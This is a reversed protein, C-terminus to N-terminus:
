SKDTVPHHNNQQSKILSALAEAFTRSTRMGTLDVGLRVLTQSAHAGVGTVIAEAGILKLSMVLNGLNAVAHSDVIRAGTIDIIFACAGTRMVAALAADTARQMRLTDLSGILPLALVGRWVPVVPTSVEELMQERQRNLEGLREELQKQEEIETNTGFWRTIQGNSDLVPLARGLHWRYNGDSARRLRFEISYVEGTQLSRGWRENCESLDEPHVQSQWGWGLMEEMTSDFYDLVRQNVYDLGGDPGATWVQQPIAEALFRYRQESQQLAAEVRKRETIDRAIGTFYRAGGRTFESFSVELPIERGDKHLGPLEVGDWAIHRIGTSLYRDLGQEHLHRLYEPMLMTLHQGMMEEIRHGFIKEAAPNIFSIISGANITIIADSATEAVIRYREESERLARDAQRREIFQGMQIGITSIMRLVDEDPERIEHCFFEMVGLIERGLLIPFAFAGHLNERIAVPARPFNPDAAVDPIWIPERRAWVRGPLGRDPAFRRKASERAFEEVDTSAIHWLEVCSLEEQGEGPMWLAGLTWRLSECIVQLVRPAAEELAGSEAFIRTAAHQAALRREARKRETIDRFSLVAGVLEGEMIIPSSTYNVPFMEGDKRTFVDDDNSVTALSEMVALLPCQEASVRTGDARQFHIADHMNRGLLEEQKWGLMREAAPNMYILLGDQDLAYVGEGLNNALATTFDINPRIKRM